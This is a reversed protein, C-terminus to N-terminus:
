FASIREQLVDSYEGMILSQRRLRDQEAKDLQDFTEAQLFNRLKGLKTDLETKEEVVREQHAEM